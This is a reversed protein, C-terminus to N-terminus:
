FYKRYVWYMDDDDQNYPCTYAWDSEEVTIYGNIVTFPKFNLAKREVYRSVPYNVVVGRVEAAPVPYIMKIWLYEPPNNVHKMFYNVNIEMQLDWDEQTIPRIPTVDFSSFGLLEPNDNALMRKILLENYEEPSFTVPEVEHIGSRIIGTPVGVIFNWGEKLQHRCTGRAHVIEGDMNAYFIKRLVHHEPLQPGSYPINVFAFETVVLGPTFEIGTIDSGGCSFVETTSFKNLRSEDIEPLTLRLQGGRLEGVKGLPVRIGKNDQRLEGYINYSISKPYPIERTGIPAFNAHVKNFFELASCTGTDFQYQRWFLPIPDFAFAIPLDSPNPLDNEEVLSVNPVNAAEDTGIPSECATFLVAMMVATLLIIIRKM